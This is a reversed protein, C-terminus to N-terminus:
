MKKDDANKEIRMKVDAMRLHGTRTKYVGWQVSYFQQLFEQM